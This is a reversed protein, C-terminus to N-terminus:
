VECDESPDPDGGTRGVLLARSVSELRRLRVQSNLHICTKCYKWNRGPQSSMISSARGDGYSYSTRSSRSIMM